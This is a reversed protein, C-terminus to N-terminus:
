PRRGPEGSAHRDRGAPRLLYGSWVEDFVATSGLESVLDDIFGIAWRDTAGTGVATVGTRPHGMSVMSGRLDVFRVGPQEAFEVPLVKDPTVPDHAPEERTANVLAVLTRPSPDVALLGMALRKADTPLGEDLPLLVLLRLPVEEMSGRPASSFERYLTTAIGGTPAARVLARVKPDRLDVRIVLQGDRTLGAGRRPPPSRRRRRVGGQLDRLRADRLLEVAKRVGDDWFGLYEEIQRTRKM